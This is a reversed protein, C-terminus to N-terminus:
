QRPVTSAHRTALAWGRGDRVWVDTYRFTLSFPKDDHMGEQVSEAIAVAVNGFQQTALLRLDFSELTMRGAIADLWAQKGVPEAIWGATTILFDDRLLKGTAELDGRSLSELLERELRELENVCGINPGGTAPPV